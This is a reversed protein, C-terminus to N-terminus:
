DDTLSSFPFFEGDPGAWKIEDKGSLFKFGMDERGEEKQKTLLLRQLNLGHKEPSIHTRICKVCRLYYIRYSKM